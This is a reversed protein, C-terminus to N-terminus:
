ALFIGIILFIGVVIGLRKGLRQSKKFRYIYNGKPNNYGSPYIRKKM